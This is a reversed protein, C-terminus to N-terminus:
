HEQSESDHSLPAPSAHRRDAPTAISESEFTVSGAARDGLTDQIRPLPAAM